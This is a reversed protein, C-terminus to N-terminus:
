KHDKKRQVDLSALGQEIKLLVQQTTHKERAEIHLIGEELSQFM